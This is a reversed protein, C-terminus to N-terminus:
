EVKRVPNGVYVGEKLISKVVVSGAGIVVKSSIRINNSIVSNSGIFTEAGIQCGGNVISGTSIHCHDGIVTDHEIIANTNIICNRGIRSNANIFANHMIITGEGITAYRSVYALPSIIIPFNARLDKLLNFKEVRKEGSKIQGITILFNNCKKIIDPLDEDTGIIKYGLIERYLNERLDVIGEIQFKGETQVIDICARCHGGGGVLIIKSQMRVKCRNVREINQM